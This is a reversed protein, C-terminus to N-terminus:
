SHAKKHPMFPRGESNIDAPYKINQLPFNNKAFGQLINEYNVQIKNRVHFTRCFSYNVFVRIDNLTLGHLQLTFFCRSRCSNKAIAIPKISVCM